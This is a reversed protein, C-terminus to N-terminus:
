GHKRRLNIDIVITTKIWTSILPWGCKGVPEFCSEPLKPLKSNKALKLKRPWKLPRFSPKKLDLNEIIASPIISGWFHIEQIICKWRAIMRRFCLDYAFTVVGHLQHVIKGLRPGCSNQCKM